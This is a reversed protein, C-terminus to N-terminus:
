LDKTENLEPQPDLSTRGCGPTMCHAVNDIWRVTERPQGGLPVDHGDKLCMWFLVPRDGILELLKSLASKTRPRDPWPRGAEAPTLGDCWYSGSRLQITEDIFEYAYRHGPHALGARSQDCYRLDDNYVQAASPQQESM